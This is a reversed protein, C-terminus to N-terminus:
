QAQALLLDGAQQGIGEQAGKGPSVGELPLGLVASKWVDVKVPSRGGSEYIKLRLINFINWEM